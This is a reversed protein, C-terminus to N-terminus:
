RQKKPLRPTRFTRRIDGVSMEYGNGCLEQHIKFLSNRQDNEGLSAGSNDMMPFRSRQGSIWLVDKGSVLNTKRAPTSEYIPVFDEPRRVRSNGPNLPPFNLSHRRPLVAANNPTKQERDTQDQNQTHRAKVTKNPTTEKATKSKNSHKGKGKGKGEHTSKTPETKTVPVHQRGQEFSNQPRSETKRAQTIVGQQGNLAVPAVKPKAKNPHPHCTKEVEEEEEEAEEEENSDRDRGRRREENEEFTINEPRQDPKTHPTKDSAVSLQIESGHDPASQTKEQKNAITQPKEKPRGLDGESPIGGPTIVNSFDIAINDGEGAPKPSSAFWRLLMTRFRTVSTEIMGNQTLVSAHLQSASQPPDALGMEVLEATVEAATVEANWGGANGQTFNEIIVGRSLNDIRTEPVHRIVNGSSTGPSPDQLYETTQIPITDDHFINTHEGPQHSPESDGMQDKGEETEPSM